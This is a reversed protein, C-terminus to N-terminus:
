ARMYELVCGVRGPARALLVAAAIRDSSVIEFVVGIAAAAESRFPEGRVGASVPGSPRKVSM